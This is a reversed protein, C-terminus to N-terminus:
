RAHRGEPAFLPLRLIVRAGGSPAEAISLTGRHAETLSRAVALGLGAGGTNRNRSTELRSFPELMAAREKAPIGPGHDDVTLVFMGGEIAGTLEASRGYKIANDALNAIVRRLALRDGIVVPATRAPCPQYAIVAGGALRDAVESQVLDEIEVMEESLEAAGARSALLADDLLRIMDAIDTTAREREIPDAIKEVRLQLRAAFTRVDHSIGGLMAMRARLLEALRGQLRNFAGILARFEPASRRQDPLPVPDASLDVLDVARALRRLPKTERQMVLLAILAVLTGLIGAGFGLPLGLPGRMLPTGITATLVGGGALAIRLILIDPWQRQFLRRRTEQVDIAVDRGQLADRYIQVTKKGFASLPRDISAGVDSGGELAVQFGDASIARQILGRQAPPAHDLLEVIALVRSPDGLARLDAGPGGIYFFAIASVWVMVLGLVLILGMRTAFTFGRIM